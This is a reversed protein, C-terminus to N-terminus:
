GFSKVAWLILSISVAASVAICALAQLKDFNFHMKQGPVTPIAVTPDSVTPEPVAAEQPSKNM